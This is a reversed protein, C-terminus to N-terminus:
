LLYFSVSFPGPYFNMRGHFDCRSVLRYLCLFREADSKLHAWPFSVHSAREPAPIVSSGASLRSLGIVPADPIPPDDFPNPDAFPDEAVPIAPRNTAAPGRQLDKHASDLLPLLSSPPNDPALDANSNNMDLLSPVPKRRPGPSRPQELSSITEKSNSQEPTM